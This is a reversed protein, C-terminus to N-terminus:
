AMSGVAAVVQPAKLRHEYLTEKTSGATESRVTNGNSARRTGKMESELETFAPADVIQWDGGINWPGRANPAGRDGIGTSDDFYQNV